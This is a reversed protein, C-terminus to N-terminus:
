KIASVAPKANAFECTIRHGRAAADEFFRDLTLKEGSSPEYLRAVKNECPMPEPSAARGALMIGAVAVASGLAAIGAKSAFNLRALRILQMDIAQFLTTKM